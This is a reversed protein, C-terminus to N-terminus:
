SGGKKFLCARGGMRILIDVGGARVVCLSKLVGKGVEYKTKKASIM